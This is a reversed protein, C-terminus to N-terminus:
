SDKGQGIAALRTQLNSGDKGLFWQDDTDTWLNTGGTLQKYYKALYILENDTTGETVSIYATHDHGSWPTHWIDAYVNQALAQLQSQRYAPIGSGGTLGTPEGPNFNIVPQSFIKNKIFPWNHYLLLLLVVIGFWIWFWKNRLLDFAKSTIIGDM